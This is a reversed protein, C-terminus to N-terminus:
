WTYISDLTAKSWDFQVLNTYAYQTKIICMYNLHVWLELHSPTFPIEANFKQFDANSNFNLPYFHEIFIQIEANFDFPHLIKGHVKCRKFYLLKGWM